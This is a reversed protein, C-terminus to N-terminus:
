VKDVPSCSNLPFQAQIKLTVCDKSHRCSNVLRFKPEVDWFVQIKLLLGTNFELRERLLWEGDLTSGSSRRRILEGTDWQSPDKITLFRHREHIGSHGTTHGFSSVCSCWSGASDLVTFRWKNPSNPVALWGSICFIRIIPNKKSFLCCHYNSTGRNSNVTHVAVLGKSYAQNSTRSSMVSCQVQDSLRCNWPLM